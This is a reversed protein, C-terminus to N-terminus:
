SKRSEVGNWDFSFDIEECGYNYLQGILDIRREKPTIFLMHGGGGAGLVKAGWAGAFKGQYYITDIKANTVGQNSKKKWLWTKELLRGIKEPDDLCGIAEYAIDKIENLARIQPESLEKFGEQITSSKRTKGLYFLVMYEKLNEAKTRKIPYRYVKDEFLFINAGGYTSAYQDQKGGFLKIKNVEIDWAKEAIEDKTMEIGKAKCASAVLAVAAAASAGIGSEVVSDFTSITSVPHWDFEEFFKEYFHPDAGVPYVNDRADGFIFHQRLNIAFNVCIGGFNDSYTPIDTAAGFLSIRTPAQATIEM